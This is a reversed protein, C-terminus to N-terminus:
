MSAEELDRRLQAIEEVDQLRRGGNEEQFQRVERERLIRQATFAAREEAIQASFRTRDEEVQQQHREREQRLEEDKRRLADSMDEDKRRLADSMERNVGELDKRHKENVEELEKQHMENIEALEKRRKETAIFVRIIDHAGEQNRNGKAYRTYQAGKALSSQFVTKIAGFERKLTLEGSQPHGNWMLMTIILNASAEKEFFNYLPRFISFFDDSIRNDTLSRMYIIGDFKQDVTYSPNGLLNSLEDLVEDSAFLGDDFHPTEVQKVFRGDVKFSNTAKFYGLPSVFTPLIRLNQASADQIFTSQGAEYTGCVAILLPAEEKTISQELHSM